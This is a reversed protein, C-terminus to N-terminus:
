GTSEPVGVHLPVANDGREGTKPRTKDAPSNPHIWTGMGGKAVSVDDPPRTTPPIKRQTM